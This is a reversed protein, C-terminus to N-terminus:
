FYGWGIRYMMLLSVAQPKKTPRVPPRHVGNIKNYLGCANCLYHGTGDRRWLPTVSSGCNVCEKVLVEARQATRRQQAQGSDELATNQWAGPINYGLSQTSDAQNLSVNMTNTTQQYQHFTSGSSSSWSNNQPFFNESTQPPVMTVQTQSTNVEFQTQFSIIDPLFFKINGTKNM